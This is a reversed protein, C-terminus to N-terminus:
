HESLLTTLKSIADSSRPYATCNTFAMLAGTGKLRSARDTKVNKAATQKLRMGRQIRKNDKVLGSQASMGTGNLLLLSTIFIVEYKNNIEQM